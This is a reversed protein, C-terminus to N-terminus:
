GKWISYQKSQNRCLILFGIGIDIPKIQAIDEEIQPIVATRGGFFPVVKFTM